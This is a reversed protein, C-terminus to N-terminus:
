RKYIKKHRRIFMNANSQQRFRKKFVTVADDKTMDWTRGFDFGLYHRNLDTVYYDLFLSTEYFNENWEERLLDINRKNQVDQFIPRGDEDVSEIISLCSFKGDGEGYYCGPLFYAFTISPSDDSVNFFLGYKGYFRNTEKFHKIFIGKMYGSIKFYCGDKGGESEWILTILDGKENEHEDVIKYGKNQSQLWEKIDKILKYAEEHNFKDM